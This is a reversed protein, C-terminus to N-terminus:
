VLGGTSTRMDGVELSRMAAVVKLRESSYAVDVVAM